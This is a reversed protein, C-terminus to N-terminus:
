HRPTTASAQQGVSGDVLSLVAGGVGAGGVVLSARWCGRSLPSTDLNRTWRGSDWSMAGLDRTELVAAGASCGDLRALRLGPAAGSSPTWAAGDVTLSAKLPITRGLNAVIAPTSASLPSDWAVAGLHVRVECTGSASNGAADTATCTVTTTGVPLQSGSAPTCSANVPAVGGTVTPSDFNVRASTANHAVVPAIVPCAIGLTRTVV